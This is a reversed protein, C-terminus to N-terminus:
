CQRRRDSSATAQLRRVPCAHSLINAKVVAEGDEVGKKEGM